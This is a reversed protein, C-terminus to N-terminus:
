NLPRPLRIVLGDVAETIAIQCTLRSNPRYDDACEAMDRESDSAAPLSLAQAGEVYGHCTGCACAGGCDALIGPVSADVAAQMVSSGIRAQVVHSVGNDEIFTLTPM